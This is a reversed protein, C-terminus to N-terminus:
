ISFLRYFALSAAHAVWGVLLRDDCQSRESVGHTKPDHLFEGLVGLGAGAVEGLDEGHGLRGDAGVELGQTLGAKHGGAPSARLDAVGDGWLGQLVDLGGEGLERGREELRCASARGVVGAWVRTRGAGWLTKRQHDSGALMRGAWHSRSLRWGVYLQRYRAVPQDGRSYWPRSTLGPERGTQSSCPLTGDHSRFGFLAGRMFPDAGVVLRLQGFQEAVDPCRDVAVPGALDVGVGHIPRDVVVVTGGGFEPLEAEGAAPPVWAPNM